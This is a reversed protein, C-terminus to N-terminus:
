DEIGLKMEDSNGRLEPAYMASALAPLASFKGPIEARIRYSLSHKGLPLTRLFFCVRDDRFERYASLGEWTYGSRVDDPEFGAAKLDEFILYEYDNKSELTLEVEILDGSKLTDGDKIEARDYKLVKQNIAQGSSGSVLVSADKRQILRFYKRNVKVELGARTIRDELTFNTLYVNSYLPGAGKRRLTVEHKGATVANGEVLLTGDFSFLNDKNITVSKKVQGDILVEVTMDPANEGTAKIYDAMAEICYATDRTSNWWTAHRRNNLLFKVLGSAEPSKPKVRALLKLYFANAEIESGYWWWWYSGNRLDLRATQNEDDKVLFQEVNQLLMDRKETKKETDLALGFVAKAYVSLGNRDRYLFDTMTDNKVGADALVMRVLADTNDAASKWPDKKKPANQLEVVQREEYGKLWNVGNQVVGPIIALGAAQAVQLGHLVVATTHPWSQERDGSFWGWGGDRNQMSTIRELGVKVIHVHEEEDFVPNKDSWRLDKWQQEARKQPDGIQQANLNTRKKQVDALSIGMDLLTKRAIVAPVFRNLTQETCGYPYDVLYPLADVMATALSPSYRVELKSQEPRRENPVTFAIKAESGDPRIAASWSETKLMGHVKVPFSMQMADSDSDTIAKMRVIATGEKAAKVRWDVRQEKRTELSITKTLDQGPIAELCAGDLELSVKVDKKADLYNHVNASLTVEDKEVFFRPAQLRIILDKGTIIEADAEGVKTGHGMAWAKIKWTTLNDPLPVEIEAIGDKNTEMSQSWFASDAFDSRIMVAQEPSGGAEGAGSDDKSADRDGVSKAAAMPAASLMDSERAANRGGGPGFGGGFGIGRERRVSSTSGPKRKMDPGNKDELDITMDGFIGLMQWGPLDSPINLSPFFLSLNTQNNPHHQRRWKWFWDKIDPVNSGGSIYELSKDYVTVVTSGVYPQNDLGTLKLKVKAKGRPKYKEADTLVEMNLVRKAPPVAIERMTSHVKGDSVTFAELFFNPMDDLAVKVTLPTSKGKLRLVQPHPCLGASPKIFLFVTSDARETNVLLKVDEGPAYEAKEPVLEIQSFRYDRGDNAAGRVVFFVGGEQERGKADKIKASIRYQGAETASFKATVMGDNSTTIDQGAVETEKPEGKENYGIKLLSARGAGKVGKRDLTMARVGAEISQGVEYHGRDTWTTVSFPQRAVLVQGSGLITRRSEDTVEISIEYRHDEDPHLEKAISTDIVIDMKGDPGIAGEGELVLEPPDNQQPWWWWLPAKCGWRRWGPYWDYDYCWWWYGPGYFWDWPRVPYWRATHPSRQVKYKVKANVVPAGFYYTATMKATVKEGLMVPEAPADVKVEFEPKKYEEVRFSGQSQFGAPHTFQFYYVGLTAAGDLKLTDAMGGWADATLEKEFVKEQKPNIIRVTFKENAYASKDEPLDYKALRAWAKFKVEQGPRYVPRDTILHIKRQNWEQAGKGPLWVGIFGMNAFRGEETTATILWQYRGNPDKIQKQSAFFQGSGDTFEAFNRTLINAQRRGTRKKVDIYETRYGFFELNAKAVPAGTKSDVVYYHAEEEGNKQVIATDTIWAICGVKNGDKLAAELFYAGPTQLPTTVDIRRDWHAKRPELDLEWKAVEEGLYKAMDKEAIRYGINGVNVKQWDLDEPNSKLYAKTDALLKKFDVRRATLALHSGNRFVFGVKAGIGPIQTSSGDFRGWNKVIQDLQDQWIKKLHDPATARLRELTSGLISAAREYQRRNIFISAFEAAAEAAVGGDPDGTVIRDYIAIFNFEDPLTFRKVGTALRATTENEKLTHLTLIGDMRADDDDEPARWYAAMTQVDFEGQLFRAFNLDSRLAPVKGQKKWEALLWRFREGDSKAAAWSEPTKHYVPDGKADVPAGRDSNMSRGGRWYYNRRGYGWRQNEEYDPLKSLDTLAQLEWGEVGAISIVFSEYFSAKTEPSENGGQIATLADQFLQLSRVRDRQASSVQRGGAYQGRQYEGSVITGWPQASQYLAAAQKLLRWDKPHAKVAEEVVADWLTPKGLNQVCQVAKNLDDALPEGASAADTALERFVKLADNWNGDRMSKDAQKRREEITAASVAASFTMGALFLWLISLLTTTKM